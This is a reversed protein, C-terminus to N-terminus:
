GISTMGVALSQSLRDGGGKRAELRRKADIQSRVKSRVEWDSVLATEM